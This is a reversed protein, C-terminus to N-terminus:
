APSAPYPPMAPSVSQIYIPNTYVWPTWDGLIDVYAEMRYVGEESIAYEFRRGEQEAIKEGNRVLRFKVPLPSEAHFITGDSYPMSEGMVSQAGDTKALFVFGRADAIMDFAIFARGSKLADVLSSETLEKALLHTNVFRLSRQYRDLDFRFLQRGPELRGFLLRLGLKKIGNLPYDGIIDTGTTRVLLTDRDTYTARIGNNQHADNASIGVVRRTQNLTDWHALIDEQPDFLLRMAQDPYKGLSLVLDPLMGGYSEDKFDTHINYIEMGTYYPSDWPREEESHAYFLVGGRSVIEEALPLPEANCDVITDDPLGWPMYGGSMEFGRVFLVGDHDGKWGRSFDGMGMACHDSMFLFDIDAEKAAALVEEFPVESDHSLLSHSHLCGRFETWETVLTPEIRQAQLNQWAEAQNPFEIFRRGLSDRFLIALAFASVFILLLIAGTCWRVIKLLKKM